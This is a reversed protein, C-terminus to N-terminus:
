HTKATIPATQGRGEILSKSHFDAACNRNFDCSRLARIFVFYYLAAFMVFNFHRRITDNRFGVRRFITNLIIHFIFSPPMLFTFQSRPRLHKASAVHDRKGCGQSRAQDFATMGDGKLSENAIRYLVIYACASTSAFSSRGHSCLTTSVTFEHDGYKAVLKWVTHYQHVSLCKRICSNKAALFM